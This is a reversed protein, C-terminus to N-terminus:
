VEKIYMVGEVVLDIFMVDIEWVKFLDRLVEM